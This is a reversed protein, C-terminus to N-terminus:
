IKFGDRVYITCVTSQNESHYYQTNNYNIYSVKHIGLINSSTEFKVLTLITINLVLIIKQLIIKCM